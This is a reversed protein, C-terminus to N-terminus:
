IQCKFQRATAKGKQFKIDKAPITLSPEPPAIDAPIVWLDVQFEERYGGDIVIVRESSIRRREVLYPKMRAARAAAEGQKPLRGRFRRGGYFVMVGKAAPDNQLQIAFNDLRAMEDECNIDGFEDFQRMKDATAGTLSFALILVMAASKVIMRLDM